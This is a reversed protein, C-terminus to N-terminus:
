IAREYVEEEDLVRIKLTDSEGSKWNKFISETYMTMGYYGKACVYTSGSANLFECRDNFQNIKQIESSLKWSDGNLYGGRWSALIKRMPTGQITFEVIVWRDPNYSSM